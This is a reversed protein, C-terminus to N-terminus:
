FLGQDVAQLLQVIKPEEATGILDAPRRGGLQASPAALWAEPDAVVSALIEDLEPSRAPRALETSNSAVPLEPMGEDELPQSLDGMELCGM